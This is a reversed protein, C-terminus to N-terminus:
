PWRLKPPKINQNDAGGEFDVMEGTPWSWTNWNPLLGIYHKIEILDSGMRPNNENRQIAATLLYFTFRCTRLKCFCLLHQQLPFYLQITWLIKHDNTYSQEM